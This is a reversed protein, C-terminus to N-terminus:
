ERGAWYDPKRRMHMVAVVVIEDPEDRYLLAYPFKAIIKRRMSGHLVPAARPHERLIAVTEDFRRLFIAGMNEAHSEYYVAVEALEVEAAHVLRLRKM